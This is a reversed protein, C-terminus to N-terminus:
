QGITNFPVTFFAPMAYSVMVMTGNSFGNVQQPYFRPIERVIVQPEAQGVTEPERVKQTVQYRLCIVFLFLSFYFVWFRYDKYM